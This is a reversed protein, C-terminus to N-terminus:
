KWEAEGSKFVNILESTSALTFDAYTNAETGIYITKIGLNRAPILDSISDGIMWSRNFDVVYNEAAKLFLGEKPKRCGCNDEHLHPCFLFDDIFNGTRDNIDKHILLLDEERLMKRGICRQNTVVLIQPFQKNAWYLFEKIGPMLEIDDAKLVYGNDIKRNIVGDRDLFLTNYNRVSM